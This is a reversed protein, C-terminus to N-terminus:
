QETPAKQKQKQSPLDLNPRPKVSAGLEQSASKMERVALARSVRIPAGRSSKCANICGGERTRCSFPLLYALRRYSCSLLTPVWVASQSLTLCAGPEKEKLKLSTQKNVAGLRSVWCLGVYM